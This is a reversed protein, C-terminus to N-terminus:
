NKFFIWISKKFNFLDFVGFGVIKQFDMFGGLISTFMFKMYQVLFNKLYCNSHPIHSPTHFRTKCM